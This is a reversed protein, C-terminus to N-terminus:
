NKIVRITEITNNITVQVFYSGSNLTSMDVESNVTNPATRLVQQGLMNFVVINQIDSQANFTLSNTVPNPYYTFQSQNEFEDVSLTASYTSIQFSVVANNGYEFIRIYLTQGALNTDSISILSYLGDDSADDDCAVLALAGCAGSYVAMGTDGANGTPNGNTEIVLNGDAPVVVSYWIDGGLYSSCGPAPITPDAVESATASENNGVIANDTFVTGPTLPIAGACDDNGPPPPASESTFSWLPCGTAESPGNLPIVSWYITTDYAGVPADFFTNTSNAFFAQDSGDSMIGVYIDYSTPTPGSAPATWSLTIPDFAEVGTEGNTPTIPEMACDPATPLTLEELCFAVDSLSGAFDFIQIILDQGISWGTLVSDADAFTQTCTIEVGMDDRIVIGPNGPALSNFVLADTTATWTFFQDLGTNPGNCTGDMGSDTTNDTAFPLTFSASACGTGEPSPVIPIAGAMNDNPPPVLLTFNFPGVWNSTGAGGCDARVYFAYDNGDTLGTATFPNSVGTNTPTGTVTDGATIDLFEIDWLTASGTETWSLDASGPMYNGAALNIPDPCDPPTASTITPADFCFGWEWAGGTGGADDDFYIRYKFGSQQTATFSVINLVLSTYADRAASCFNDQPQAVSDVFTDWVVWVGADEDWYELTLSDALFNYSYDATVTLWTEGNNFAATLDIVPSEAAIDDESPNGADDDDFAFNTTTRPDAEFATPDANYTGTVTWSANPWGANQNLTQGIGYWSIFLMLLISLCFTIKKM